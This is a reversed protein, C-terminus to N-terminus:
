TKSVWALAGDVVGLVKGNDDATFAPVAIATSALAGVDAATLTIDASLAKGNVKRTTPVKGDLATQTATSIPKGADSTNDVNGLGVDSKSITVNASLAHGAVTRTTPVAGVDSAALVVAGTKTNVSTVASSTIYGSDNTLDSTKTPIKTTSPLAGVDAATLTVAGTKTNVSQVPAGSAAIFKSDNTLESVKTPIADTKAYGTLAANTIYKSDNELQSVKSPITPKDTLANYSGSFSSTGAGINTRAQVKQENTLTQATTKIANTVVAGTAGDVSKVAVGASTIFNSDNQLQSTKTPVSATKAYGDLATNTIFGSDNQLESTKAPIATSDALAGVDSASLVVAGTKGNVSTVDGSGGGSKTNLVPRGLEDKTYEFQDANLLYGGDNARITAM